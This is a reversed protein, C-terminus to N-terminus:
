LLLLNGGLIEAHAPHCTFIIVQRNEAYVRLLAAAKLQRDPDLNVLPDDMIVFGDAGGLFRNAMALRVAVGLVDKTGHSLRDCDITKGDDRVFSCPLGAGMSVKEYKSATVSSIYNEIDQALGAYIKSDDGSLLMKTLEHIRRTALGKKRIKAFRLEADGYQQKVEESSEDPLKGTLEARQVELEGKEDRKEQHTKQAKAFVDLFSELSDFGAPLPALEKIEIEFEKRKSVLGGLRLFIDDESVYDKSLRALEDEVGTLQEEMNELAIRSEVLEAVITAISRTEKFQELSKASNELEDYTVGDLELRLAHEATEVNKQRSEYEANILMAEQISIVGHREFLASLEVRASEYSEQIDEFNGEGSSMIIRWDDHDLRILGGAHCDFIEGVHITQESEEELDAKVKMSLERQAEIRVLLKGAAIGAKLTDIRASVSRITQLDDATLPRVEECVKKAADVAFKKAETRTYKSRLEKSKEMMEAEAEEAVLEVKRAKVKPLEKTLRESDSRLVPWRQNATKLEKIKIDISGLELDLLKRQGADGAAKAHATVFAQSDSIVKAIAALRTNLADLAEEMGNIENMRQKLGEKEYFAQLIYGADKRFPNTIGRRPDDPGLKIDDWRNFYSREMEDINQRFNDVSIGDTEQVAKRLIDSMAHVTGTDAAIDALTRELGSQYTMLVSKITGEAAPLLDSLAASITAEDTVVAKDPMTLDASPKQGWTKKLIFHKAACLLEIEVRATDGSVPIFRSIEREFDRKKLKTPTVLANQIAYFTTSKGAENAGLVVNLGADFNVESDSVGGFPQMRVRRIIM